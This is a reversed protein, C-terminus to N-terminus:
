SIRFVCHSMGAAAIWGVIHASRNSPCEFFEYGIPISSTSVNGFVDFCNKLSDPTIINKSVHAPLTQSITHPLVVDPCGYRAIYERLVDQGDRYGAVAMKAMNAVFCNDGLKEQLRVSEVFREAKELPVCCLDAFENSSKFVYHEQEAADSRVISVSACEGLTLAAGKWHLDEDNKIKFSEPYVKGPVELPFEASIIACYPRAQTTFKSAIHSATFWGMCADSVDVTRVDNLGFAQAFFSAHSPEIVGKDIGCYILAGIQKSDNPGIKSLCNLWADSIHELPKTFGSRWRRRKAGAKELFVSLNHELQAIEGSYFRRSHELVLSIVYDNTAIFDPISTGTAVITPM